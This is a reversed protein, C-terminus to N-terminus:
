HIPGLRACRSRRRGPDPGDRVGRPTPRSGPRHHSPHRPRRAADDFGRTVMVCRPCGTEICWSPEGVPRDARGVVARPVRRRFGPRRDAREPRFRRVDVRSGPRAFREIADLSQQTLLLLPFADFYTGLPSEFEFIEPPFVSLDPLPEDETRGFLDRLEELLDDSDPAGRRYHETDAAPRLPHLTVEHDLAASLRADVDDDTSDVTSGDPLGIRIAPPTGM